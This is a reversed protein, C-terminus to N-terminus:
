AGARKSNATTHNVVAKHIKSGYNAIENPVHENIIKRVRVELEVDGNANTSEKLDAGYNHIIVNPATNRQGTGQTEIVRDLTRDLKKSTKAEVVRENKKLNWTGDEPVSEIGDHAQGDFSLKVAKINSIISATEAAIIAMQVLNQPFAANASKAIASSINVVSSAVAYAKDAAFMMKYISSQKGATDALISLMSGSIDQAYSMNLQLEATNYDELIRQRESLYTEYSINEAMLNSQLIEMRGDFTDQLAQYEGTGNLDANMGIYDELANTKVNAIQDDTDFALAGLRANREGDTLGLTQEIEQRKLKENERIFELETMHYRQIELLEQQKSRMLQDLAYQHQADISEKRLKREEAGMGKEIDISLKSIRHQSELKQQETWQWAFLDADYENLYIQKRAESIEKARNIIESQTVSGLAGNSSIRSIEDNLDREIRMFEDAYDYLIRSAEQAQREWIRQTQELASNTKQVASTTKDQKDAWDQAGKTIAGQRENADDYLRGMKATAESVTDDFIAGIKEAAEEAIRANKDMMDAAIGDESQLDNAVLIGTKFLKMSPLKDYWSANKAQAEKNVADLATSASATLGALSNAILNITAYVGVAMAAVGRLVGALVEGGSAMARADKDGQNFADAIDVFAPVVAQVLQTKAGELQLSLLESQVRFEAAKQIGQEDLIAGTREAADGWLKVQEANNKYLPLLMQSESGMSEMLFNQQDLSLNAEEMKSVYLGMAAPGSLESMERALNMAASASGETKVAVQEMWDVMGGSGSTIMEGVKENFDKYIDSLQEAEVGVQRAAVANRQFETTSAQSKYAAIEIQKAQEAQASAMSLLGTVAVSSAGVVWGAMNNASERISDFTSKSEKKADQMGSKFDATDADLLVQIRSLIDNGAM